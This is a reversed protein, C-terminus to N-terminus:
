KGTKSLVEAGFRGSMYVSDINTIDTEITQSYRWNRALTPGIFHAVALLGAVVSSGDSAMLGSNNLLMDYNKAALTLAMSDQLIHNTLFTKLTSVATSSGPWSIWTAMQANETVTSKILGLTQMAKYDFQYKGIRNNSSIYMYNSNSYMYGIQCMLGKTQDKTLTAVSFDPQRQAQYYSSPAPRLPSSYILTPIVDIM